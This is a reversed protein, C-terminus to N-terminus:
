SRSAIPRSIEEFTAASASSTMSYCAPWGGPGSNWPMWINKDVTARRDYPRRAKMKITSKSRALPRKAQPRLRPSFGCNGRRPGSGNQGGRRAHNSRFGIFASAGIVAAKTVVTKHEEATASVVSSRCAQMPSAKLTHQAAM